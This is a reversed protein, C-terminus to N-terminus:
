CVHGHTLSFTYIQVHCGTLSKRDNISLPMSSINIALKASDVLRSGRDVKEKKKCILIRELLKQIGPWMIVNHIQM